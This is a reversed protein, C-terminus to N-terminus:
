NDDTTIKLQREVTNVAFVTGHGSSGGFEATGYLTSGLLILGASPNAGDSGGTFSYLTTFTQAAVRGALILGLGAILVSLLIKPRSFLNRSSRKLYFQLWM